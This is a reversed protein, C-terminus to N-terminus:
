DHAEMKCAELSISQVPEEVLMLKELLVFPIPSQLRFDFVETIYSLIFRTIEVYQEFPALLQCHGM